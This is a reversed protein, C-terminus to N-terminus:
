KNYALCIKKGLFRINKLCLFTNYIHMAGHVTPERTQVNERQVLVIADHLGELVMLMYYRGFIQRM